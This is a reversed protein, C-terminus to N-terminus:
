SASRRLLDALGDAAGRDGGPVAHAYVDLTTSTRNHALRAAVIPIPVGANLMETAMFHRLDHLRYGRLGTDDRLRIFMKTVWNPRWPSMGDVGRGFVFASPQLEVGAAAAHAEVDARHRRVEDMTADDVEVRIRKRSKTPVIQVGGTPGEALSRAFSVTNRDFDIDNWRLACVQGRRAGTSVALRFFTHLGPAEQTAALLRAVAAPPPSFIERRQAVPPCAHEAPNTWVWEWRVAQTLARRLVGHIRHVTGDSLGRGDHGGLNRLDAYFADIGATTLEGVPLHGFRPILHVNIVSRTQRQTNIAWRPAANAYWQEFLEGFTTDLAQRRPKSVQAAFVALEAQAERRSGRVTRTAYRMKGTAPHTGDYVRLEWSNAGRQRLSGNM